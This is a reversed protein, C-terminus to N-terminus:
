KGYNSVKSEYLLVRDVESNLGPEKSYIPDVAEIWILWRDKLMDYVVNCYTHIPWVQHEYRSGPKWEAVFLEELNLNRYDIIYATFDKTLAAGKVVKLAKTGIFIPGLTSANITGSLFFYKPQAEGNITPIGLKKWNKGDSSVALAAHVIDTGAKRSKYLCFYKGDIIDITCDRAEGSDYEKDCRLVFGWPKWPGQPDDATLLFTEWKSEYIRKYNGAINKEYLDVSLYLHYKGTFPDKLLQQNEISQVQKGIYESLEEKSISYVLNFDEGNNSKYIEVAYGRTPHKMRPRSTLWYEQNESDIWLKGAGSWSGPNFNPPNLLVKEFKRRSFIAQPPYLGQWM